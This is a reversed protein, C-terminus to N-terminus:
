SSAFGQRCARDAAAVPWPSRAGVRTLRAAIAVAQAVSLGTGPSIYAGGGQARGLRAGRSEGDVRLRYADHGHVRRPRDAEAGILRSKAAGVSPVGLSLGVMSAVGCRRPHLIGQGDVLVVAHRRVEEDVKGVAAVLGEMERFALYGPIYPLAPAFRVTASQLPEGEGVDFVCAAACAGGERYAADVGIVVKPPRRLPELRVRAALGRQREAMEALVPPVDFDRVALRDLRVVRGGSVEVGEARLASAKRRPGGFAYGGLTGDAMVVRHCPVELPRDNRALEGGVARAASVDGLARALDGYTTVRGRPVQALARELSVRFPAGGPPPGRV